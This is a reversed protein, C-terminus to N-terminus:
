VTGTGGSTETDLDTAGQAATVAAAVDSQLTSVTATLASTDVTGAQNSIFTQIDTVAKSVAASVGEIATNSAQVTATLADIDSQTAMTNEIRHLHTLVRILLERDSHDRFLEEFKRFLEWETDNM